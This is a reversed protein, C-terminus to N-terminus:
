CERNARRLIWLNTHSPPRGALIEEPLPRKEIEYSRHRALDLFADAQHREPDAVWAVGDPALMADFTDLLPTHNRKEYILECALILPFTCPLPQRWDLRIGRAQPFGNQVANSLALQVSQRDYDSLVVSLGAALAALAVLGIGTGLELAQTGPRWKTRLLEAGMDLSSPWLHGWYPMYDDRVNAALVEPLDLLADPNAPMTVQFARGELVFKRTAWGGAIEPFQGAPFPLLEEAATQERTDISADEPFLPIKM